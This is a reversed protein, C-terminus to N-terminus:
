FACDCPFLTGQESLTAEVRAWFSNSNERDNPCIRKEDRMEKFKPELEELYVGKIISYGIEKEAAKAEAWIDHRLCYVCYWHQRGAKLCGICNAHKYIRYTIPRRIGVDETKDITREWDALPFEPTYGMAKIVDARRYIRDTENADFGYVIHVDPSKPITELYNYFPATKLHYTCIAKGPRGAFITKHTKCVEIPPMDEYDDANAYTIPLGCYESVERKFRKIDEHEVHSSINHNLLITNEKGYRRVTEIAALASSHGGSFCAIAIM